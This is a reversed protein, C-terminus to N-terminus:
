FYTITEKENSTSIYQIALWVLWAITLGLDILILIIIVLRGINRQKSCTSLSKRPSYQEILQINSLSLNRFSLYEITHTRQCYVLYDHTTSNLSHISYITQTQNYEFLILYQKSYLYIQQASWDISFQRARGFNIINTYFQCQSTTLHCIYIEYPDTQFLIWILQVNEDILYKLIKTNNPFNTLQIQKIASSSSSSSLSLSYINLLHTEINLIYLYQQSIGLYDTSSVLLNTTSSVSETPNLTYVKSNDLSFIVTNTKRHVVASEITQNSQTEFLLSTSQFDFLLIENSSVLLFMEKDCQCVISLIFEIFIFFRLYASMIM